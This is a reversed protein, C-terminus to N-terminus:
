RAVGQTSQRFYGKESRPDRVRLVDARVLAASKVASIKRELKSRTASGREPKQKARV